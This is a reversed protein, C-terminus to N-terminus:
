QIHYMTIYLSCISVLFLFSFYFHFLFLHFCARVVLECKVEMDYVPKIILLSLNFLRQYDKGKSVLPQKTQNPTTDYFPDELFISRDLSWLCVCVCFERCMRRSGELRDGGRKIRWHIWGAYFYTGSNFM